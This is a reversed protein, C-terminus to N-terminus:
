KRHLNTEQKAIASVLTPQSNILQQKKKFVLVISLIVCVYITAIKLKQEDIQHPFRCM